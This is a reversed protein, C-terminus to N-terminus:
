PSAQMDKEAKQLVERVRFYESPKNRKLWVSSLNKELLHLNKAIKGPDALLRKTKGARYYYVLHMEELLVMSLLGVRVEDILLRDLPRCRSLIKEIKAQLGKMKALANVHARAPHKFLGNPLGSASDFWHDPYAKSKPQYVWCVMQWTAKRAAVFDDLLGILAGSSDGLLTRSVAPEIIKAALEPSSVNWAAAAGFVLGPLSAGLTNVHGFQAWDTTIMGSAGFQRGLKAFRTANLRCEGYEPMWSYMSCSVGACVYFQRKAEALLRTNAHKLEPGYDWDLAIAEAPIESILEPHHGIIDGWFLPIADVDKVIGIIKKLFDVYLRGKGVKDALAKNKGSGLDFTEDCCINFYRSRFLPRVEHIIERVLELSRPNQCDLTYHSMRDRWCFPESSVDRELENLEPFKDHIWPYLHGFTSFSPVLDIHLEACRADLTRIEDATLPDCGQWVEPHNKFAFTHEIYLELHNLKYHACTEALQLLTKLTPVKGRTIDHYFGRVPYDPWDLIELCPRGKPFQRDIQKLTQRAYFFGTPEGARVTTGAPTILLQYAGTEGRGPSTIVKKVKKDGCVGAYRAIKKPPPILDLTPNTTKMKLFYRNKQSLEMTLIQSLGSFNAAKCEPM